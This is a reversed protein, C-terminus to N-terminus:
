NQRKLARLIVNALLAVILDAFIWELFSFIGAIGLVTFVLLLAVAFAGVAVRAKRRSAFGSSM